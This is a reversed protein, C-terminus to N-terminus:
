VSKKSQFFSFVERFRSKGISKYKGIKGFFKVQNETFVLTEKLDLSKNWYFLSNKLVNYLILRKTYFNFDISKDGIDYWINSAVNYILKSFLFPRLFTYNIFFKSLNSNNCFIKLFEMTILNTKKSISKEKIVKSKCNKFANIYTKQFYFKSLSVIKKPFLSYFEEKSIKYKDLYIDLNNDTVKSKILVKALKLFITDKKSYNKM